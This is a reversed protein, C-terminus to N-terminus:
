RYGLYNLSYDRYTLERSKGYTTLLKDGWNEFAANVGGSPSASIVYSVSYDKPYETISAQVGYEVGDSASGSHILV